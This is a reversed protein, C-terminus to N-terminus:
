KMLYKRLKWNKRDRLWLSQLLLKLLLLDRFGFQKFLFFFFMFHIYQKLHVANREVKNIADITLISYM